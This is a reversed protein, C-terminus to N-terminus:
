KNGNHSKSVITPHNYTITWFKLYDGGNRNLIINGFIKDEVETYTLTVEKEDVGYPMVMEIELSTFERIYLHILDCLEQPCEKLSYSSFRKAFQPDFQEFKFAQKQEYHDIVEQNTKFEVIMALGNIANKKMRKINDKFFKDKNVEKSEHFKCESRSLNYIDEGDIAGMLPFDCFKLAFRNDKWKCTDCISTDTMQNAVNDSVKM